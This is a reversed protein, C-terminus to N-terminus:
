HRHASNGPTAAFDGAQLEIPKGHPTRGAAHQWADRWRATEASGIGKHTLLDELAALWHHYFAGGDEADQAMEIRAALAHTWEAWSYLGRDHLAVTIAFARAQWPEAFVIERDDASGAPWVPQRM